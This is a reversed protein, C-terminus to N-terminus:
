RISGFSIQVGCINANWEWLHINVHDAFDQGFRSLLTSIEPWQNRQAVRVLNAILLYACFISEENVQLADKNRLRRSNISVCYAWRCTSYGVVSMAARGFVAQSAM